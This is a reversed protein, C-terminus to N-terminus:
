GGSAPPATAPAWSWPENLEFEGEAFERLAARMDAVRPYRGAPDRELAMTLITDISDDNLNLKESPLEYRGFPLTGMLMEYLVVGLSYIDARADVDRPRELQEPAMYHPTGMVHRSQTLSPLDGTPELLKALGFDA